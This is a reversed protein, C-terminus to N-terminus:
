NNPLFKAKAKNGIVLFSNSTNSLQYVSIDSEKEDAAYLFEFILRRLDNHEQSSFDIKVLDSTNFDQRSDFIEVKHSPGPIKAKRRKEQFDHYKDIVGYDRTVQKLDKVLRFKAAAVMAKISHTNYFVEYDYHYVTNCWRQKWYYPGKTFSISDVKNAICWEIQKM